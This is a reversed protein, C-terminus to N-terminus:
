ARGFVLRPIAINLTSLNGYERFCILHLANIGHEFSTQWIRFRKGLKLIEFVGKIQGLDNYLCHQDCRLPLSLPRSDHDCNHPWWHCKKRTINWASSTLCSIRTYVESNNVLWFLGDKIVITVDAVSSKKKASTHAWPCLNRTLFLIICENGHIVVKPDSTIGNAFLKWEHNRWEHFNNAFRRVRSGFIRIWPLEHM